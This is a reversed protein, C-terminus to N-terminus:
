GSIDKFRKLLSKGAALVTRLTSPPAPRVLIAEAEWVAIWGSNSLSKRVETRVPQNNWVNHVHEYKGIAGPRQVRYTKDGETLHMSIAETIYNAVIMADYSIQLRQEARIVEPSKM